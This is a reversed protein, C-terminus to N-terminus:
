EDYAQRYIENVVADIVERILYKKIKNYATTVANEIEAKKDLWEKSEILSDPLYDELSNMNAILSRYYKYDTILGELYKDYKIKDTLAKIIDEFKIAKEEM